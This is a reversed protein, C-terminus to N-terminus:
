QPREMMNRITHQGSGGDTVVDLCIARFPDKIRNAIEQAQDLDLGTAKILLTFSGDDQLEADCSVDFTRM